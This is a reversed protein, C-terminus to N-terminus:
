LAEVDFAEDAVEADEAAEQEASAKLASIEKSHLAIQRHLAALAPGKAESLDSVMQRRQAVLIELYTGSDVAEQLTKPKAREAAKAADAETAVALHVAKRAM